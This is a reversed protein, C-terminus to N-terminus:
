VDGRKAEAAERTSYCSACKTYHEYEDGRNLYVSQHTVAWVEYEVIDSIGDLQWLYFLKMGPVVVVGDATKPLKGVIAELDKIRQRHFRDKCTISQESITSGKFSACKWVITKSNRNPPYHSFAAGCWPCNEISM